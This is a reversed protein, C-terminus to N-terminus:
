DTNVSGSVGLTGAPVFGYWATCEGTNLDLLELGGAGAITPCPLRGTAQAFGYLADEIAQLQQLTTTRRASLTAQGVAVLVGGMLTGIIMLVIALEMLSFGRQVKLFSFPGVQTMLLGPQRSKCSRYQHGWSFNS